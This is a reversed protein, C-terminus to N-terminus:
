YEPSAPINGLMRRSSHSELRKHSRSASIALKTDKGMLKAWVSDRRASTRLTFFIHSLHSRLDTFSSYTNM